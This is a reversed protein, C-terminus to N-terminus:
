KCVSDIGEQIQESGGMMLAGAVCLLIFMISGLIMFLTAFVPKKYKATCAGLLGVLATLIGFAITGTAFGGSIDFSAYESTYDSFQGSQLVGFILVLVGMVLTVLSVIMVFKAAKHKTENSFCAM